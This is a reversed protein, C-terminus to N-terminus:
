RFLDVEPQRPCELGPEESETRRFSDLAEDIVNGPVRLRVAMRGARHHPYELMIGGVADLGGKHRRCCQGQGSCGGKQHIHPRGPTVNVVHHGQEAAPAM